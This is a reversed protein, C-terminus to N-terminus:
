NNTYFVCLLTSTLLWSKIFGEIFGSQINKYLLDIKKNQNHKQQMHKTIFVELIDAAVNFFVWIRM